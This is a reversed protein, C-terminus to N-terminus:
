QPSVSILELLKFIFAQFIRGSKLKCMECGRVAESNLNKPVHAEDLYGPGGPTSFIPLALCRTNRPVWGQQSQEPSM